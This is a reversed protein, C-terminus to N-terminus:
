DKSFLNTISGIGIGTGVTTGGAKILGGIKPHNEMFRKAGTKGVEAAAKPALNELADYLSTQKKLLNEVAVTPAKLAVLENAGQRISRLAISKANEYAPDFVTSGGSLGGMWSDLKKRAELLGDATVDGPPLYSKFKTLIRKASEEANGVMTPHEGIEKLAKGLLEDLEGQQVIPVVDMKRIDAVLKEAAESIAGKVANANEIATKGKRVVGAAAEAAQITRFDPDISSEKFFSGTKARGSKVAQKLVKATEKPSVIDLAENVLRKRAADGALGSTKAVARTAAPIAGRASKAALGAGKVTPVLSAINGVAGIDKQAEPDLGQYSQVLAQGPKTSMLGGIATGAAKALPRGIFDPTLASLGATTIDGVAGAAAGGTRLLARPLGMEGTFAGTVAEGADQGRKSLDGALTELVGAGGEQSAGTPQVSPPPQTQYGSGKLAQYQEAVETAYKPTDYQVGYENTGRWNEKYADPKSAGANWMSAIQGPNYGADKWEKVQKYAVENQLEPTAQAVPVDRGLYKRSSSAWTQPMFQYYGFEGSAGKANPNKNSEVQRIAKTLNVVDQDLTEPM